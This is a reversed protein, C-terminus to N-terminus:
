EKEPVEPVSEQEAEEGDKGKLRRRMNRRLLTYLVSATPVSILMGVFGFLGGGVTVAALVWIGPLGVQNGVVRPYILNGEIQQLIVLFILFTLAQAPSVMLLLLASAIAGFWAGIIPILASVAVIVGILPAYQLRLIMMGLCCLVGLISAEILQGGIFKAFTDATLRCVDLASTYIKEPLYARALRRCQGLLKDSAALMYISFVFAMVGTAVASVVSGTLSLIQPLTTTLLSLAGSLFDQLATSLGNFVDPSIITELFELDVKQVISDLWGQVGTLYGGLNSVFTSLSDVVQPVIFSVIGSIILLFLIYATTVALPTALKQSKGKLVKGYSRAFFRCPRNLVFAIAFGIFIPQFIMLVNGLISLLDDFRVIALILVVTYTILLIASKVFKKSM